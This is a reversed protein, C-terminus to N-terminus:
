RVCNGRRRRALQLRGDDEKPRSRRGRAMDRSAPAWRMATYNHAVGGQGDAAACATHESAM